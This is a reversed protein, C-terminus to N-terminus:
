ASLTTSEPVTSRLRMSFTFRGAPYLSASVMILKDNRGLYHRVISFGPTGARVGLLRAKKAPLACVTMSQEVEAISEGYRREILTYIPVRLDQMEREVAAYAHPFYIESLVMPLAEGAEFRLVELMRWRQGPACRLLDLVAPTAVIDQRSAISLRTDQVYTFLDSISEVSQVYRASSFKAKVLTGVGQRQSVLGMDRLKRLAERVTHRSVGFQACLAAETPLLSGVPYRGSRVDEVISEALLTYRSSGSLLTRDPESPHPRSGGRVAANM